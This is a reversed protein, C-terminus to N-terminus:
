NRRPDETTLWRSWGFLPKFGLKSYVRMAAPNDERVSLWIIRNGVAMGARTVITTILSAFGQGRRSEVVGVGQIGATGDGQSMRAIAVPEEELWVIWARIDGAEIAGGLAKRRREAQDPDIGFIERELAEHRAVSKAQVAEVRLTPDLHPVVSAHGVWMITEELVNVWGRRGLEQALDDPRDLRDCIMLSPWSGAARMRESVADLSQPWTGPEWRPMGAYTTDPGTWAGRVLTVGLEPVDTVIAGEQGPRTVVHRQIAELEPTTPPDVDPPADERPRVTDPRQTPKEPRLESL